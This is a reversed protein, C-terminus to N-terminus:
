LTPRRTMEGSGSGFVSSASFFYAATAGFDIQVTLDDDGEQRNCPPPTKKALVAVAIRRDAAGYYLHWKGRFFVMTNSVVAPSCFGKLEWEHEAHLFPKDARKLLRAPDKADFWGPLGDFFPDRVVLRIQVPEVLRPVWGFRFGVREVL